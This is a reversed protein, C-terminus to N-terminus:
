AYPRALTHIACLADIMDDEDPEDGEEDDYTSHAAVAKLVSRLREIELNKAAAINIADTRQVRVCEICGPETDEDTHRCEGTFSAEDYENEAM